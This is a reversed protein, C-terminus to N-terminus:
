TPKKTSINVIESISHLTSIICEYYETFKSTDLPMVSGVWNELSPFDKADKISIEGYRHLLINRLRNAEALSRKHKEDMDINIGIWSFMTQFRAYLDIGGNITAAKAKPEIKQAIELCIDRNFPWEQLQYKRLKCKEIVSIAAARDNEIFDAIVNEIGTEFASWMGIFSHVYIEHFNEAEMQYAWKTLEDAMALIQQKYEHPGIEKEYIGLNNRTQIDHNGVKKICEKYNSVIFFEKLIYSTTLQLSYYRWGKIPDTGLRPKQLSTM